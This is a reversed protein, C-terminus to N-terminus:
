RTSGFAPVRPRLARLPGLAADRQSLLPADCPWTVGLSPDDWRCGLDDDPDHVHSAALLHLSPAPYYFGHLVGPPITLGLLADASAEFAVGEGESPSGPRLDRLAVFCRGAVLVCYDTHRPHVHMGRLVGAGSRMVSWQAPALGVRWETRFIEAFAGRPDAHADLPLLRVGEIGAERAV